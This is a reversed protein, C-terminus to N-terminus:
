TRHREEGFTGADGNRGTEPMLNLFLTAAGAAIGAFLYFFGNYGLNDLLFCAGLPGIVDGVALAIPIM